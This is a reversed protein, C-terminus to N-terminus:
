GFFLSINFKRKPQAVYALVKNGTQCYLSFGLGSGIVLVGLDELSSYFLAGVSLITLLIASFLALALREVFAYSLVDAGLLARLSFEESRSASEDVEVVWRKASGYTVAGASIWLVSLVLVVRDVQNDGISIFSPGRLNHMYAALTFTFGLILTAIATVIRLASRVSLNLDLQALEVLTRLNVLTRLM